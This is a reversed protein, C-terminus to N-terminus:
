RAEVRRHRQFFEVLLPTADEPWAHGGPHVYTALELGNPGPEFRAFGDLEAAEPDTDLLRRLGAITSRMSRLPVLRDRQGAIVFAPKPELQRLLRIGPASSPAFAAFQDPRAAWIVFTFQAGNSHGLAYVRDPDVRHRPMLQRLLEDVLALDRDGAEGPAKQWGTKKGEPDTIGPIGTLGQPYVVVAEPWLRDLRLTRALNEATGGHGHFALVLPAREGPSPASPPIVLARRVQGAVLFRESQGGTGLAPLGVLVVLVLSVVLVLRVFRRNM